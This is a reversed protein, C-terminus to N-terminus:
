LYDVGTVLRGMEVLLRVDDQYHAARGSRVAADHYAGSSALEIAFISALGYELNPLEFEVIEATERGLMDLAAEVAKDIEPQNRGFFHNRCVGVRIARIDGDLQALDEPVPHRGSAPDDPDFGAIADLLIAADEVSRALPGPHDLSWSHPVIGGRGIRGFTPKIGVIGCLSAPIRVSGGTDSGLSGFCLGAAVAAASGGSSGGPVRGINWPNCTPATVTGWAYEHTRTKGVLIAGADRLRRVATADRMPFCTDPARTGALTPMDATTYNDKVALPIGHLPGRRRGAGIESDAREAEVLAAASV